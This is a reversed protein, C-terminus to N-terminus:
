NLSPSKARKGRASLLNGSIERLSAMKQELLDPRIVEFKGGVFRTAQPDFYIYTYFSSVMVKEMDFAKDLAIVYKLVAEKNQANEPFLNILHWVGIKIQASQLLQQALPWQYSEPYILQRLLSDTAVRSAEESIFVSDNEM